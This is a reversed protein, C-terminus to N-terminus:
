DNKEISKRTLKLKEKNMEKIEKEYDNIISNLNDIKQEYDKDKEKILNKNKDIMINIEYSTEILKQQLELIKNNKENLLEESERLSKVIHTDESKYKELELDLNKRNMQEVHLLENLKELEIKYIEKEKKEIEYSKKTYKLM